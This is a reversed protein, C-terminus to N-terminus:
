EYHLAEAPHVKAALRSPYLGCLVALAYVLGLSILISAIYVKTGVFNLFLLMPFVQIVILLGALLGLGTVISLEGLIQNRINRRTAGKARRLGIECTRRTVNLWLVGTLGLGVMMLLFGAILWAVTVPILRPKNISERMEALPAMHFYWGKAEAKLRALIREEFGSTTGPRVKILIHRGGIGPQYQTFVYGGPEALEGQIRFDDIVGIVRFPTDPVVIGIPNQGEINDHVIRLNLVIPVFNATADDEDDFWRGNIVKLGLVDRIGETAENIRLPVTRGEWPFDVVPGMWEWPYYPPIRILGVAETEDFERLAALLQHYKILNKELIQEKKLVEAPVMDNDPSVTIDWVNKYTFGLPHRYNDCYYVAWVVVIFVVLFSLIIQIMIRFNTWRRNWVLSLLHRIM